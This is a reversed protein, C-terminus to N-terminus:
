DLVGMVDTERLIVLDQGDYNLKSGAYEAFLIKDGSKVDMPRVRGKKDRHGRGVSLVLGQRNGSVQSVTDPIILGGATVRESRSVQVIIRDDLPTVFESVDVVKTKTTKIVVPKAKKPAAKKVPKKVVKKKIIKKKPASKKAKAM